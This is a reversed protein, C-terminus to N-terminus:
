ADPELADVLWRGNSFSASLKGTTFDGDPLPLSEIRITAGDCEGSPPCHLNTIGLLAQGERVWLPQANGDEGRMEFMKRAGAECSKGAPVGANSFEARQLEPGTVRCFSKADRESLSDLFQQATAVPDRRRKAPSEGEVEVEYHGVRWRGGAFSVPLPASTTGGGKLPLNEVQVIARGCSKVNAQCDLTVGAVRAQALAEWEPESGDPNRAEFMAEAREQCTGPPAHVDAFNPKQTEPLSVECYLDAERSTLAQIFREAAQLAEEKPNSGTAHKLGYGVEGKSSSEMAGETHIATEIEGKDGGSDAGGGSGCGLLGILSLLCSLLILHKKM